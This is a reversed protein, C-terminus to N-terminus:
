QPSDPWSQIWRDVEEVPFRPTRKKPYSATLENAAMADYISDRSLEVAKSLSAISYAKKPMEESM